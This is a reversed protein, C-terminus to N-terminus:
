CEFMGCERGKEDAEHLIKIKQMTELGLLNLYRNYTKQHNIKYPLMHWQVLKIIELIEEFDIIYDFGLSPLYFIINYASVNEHNYYHAEKSVNGKSDKFEKTDPKGIDHLLGAFVLEENLPNHLMLKHGVDRLHKGISELHHPNDHPMDYLEKIKKEYDYEKYRNQTHYVEIEDFGEYYQPFYFDRQMRKIVEVPVKRERSNNNEICMEIPTAVFLAKKHVNEVNKTVENIYNMRKKYNINTADIIVNKNALLSEKTRKRMEEFIYDNRDQNNVDGLLEQRLIDSSLVIANEKDKIENAM